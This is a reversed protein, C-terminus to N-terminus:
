AVRDGRAAAGLLHDGGRQRGGVGLVGIVVHREDDHAALRQESADRAQPERGVGVREHRQPPQGRAPQALRTGRGVLGVVEHHGGVLRPLVRQLVARLKRARRDPPVALHAGGWHHPFARARTPTARATSAWCTTVIVTRSGPGGVPRARGLESGSRPRPTSSIRASASSTVSSSAGCPDVTRSRRASRAPCRDAPPPADEAEARRTDADPQARRPGVAQGDRHGRAAEPAASAVATCAYAFFLLLLFVTTRRWM